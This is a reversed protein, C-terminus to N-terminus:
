VQNSSEPTTGTLAYVQSLEASNNIIKALLDPTPLKAWDVVRRLMYPIISQPETEAFYDALKMIEALAAERSLTRAPASIIQKTAVVSETAITQEAVVEQEVVDDTKQLVDKHKSEQLLYMLKTKYEEIAEQIRSCPPADKSFVKDLEQNMATFNALALDLDKIRQQYYGVSTANVEDLIDKFSVGTDAQLRASGDEAAKTKAQAQEVDWFTYKSDETLPYNRIPRILSGEIEDGNLATLAQVKYELEDDEDLSPFIAQGHESVLQEIQQFCMALGAFGYLRLGSECLWAAIELDKGVENIVKQGDSWVDRWFSASRDVDEGEWFKKECNRAEMRADKVKRYLEVQAGLRCDTGLANEIEVPNTLTLLEAM